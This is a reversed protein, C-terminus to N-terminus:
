DISIEEEINFNKQFDLDPTLQPVKFQGDHM